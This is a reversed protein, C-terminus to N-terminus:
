KTEDKKEWEGYYEELYDVLAKIDNEAEDVDLNTGYEFNYFHALDIGCFLKDDYEPNDLFLKGFWTCNGGCNFFDHLPLDMRKFMDPEQEVEKDYLEELEPILAYATLYHDFNCKKHNLCVICKRNKYTFEKVIKSM